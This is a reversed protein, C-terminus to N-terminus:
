RSLLYAAIAACLGGGMILAMAALYAINAGLGRAISGTFSSPGTDDFQAKGVVFLLFFGAIVSIIGGILMIPKVLRDVSQRASQRAENARLRAIWENALPQLCPMINVSKWEGNVDKVASLSEGAVLQWQVRFPTGSATLDAHRGELDDLKLQLEDIRLKVMNQDVAPFSRLIAQEKSLLAAARIDQELANSPVFNGFLRNAAMNPASALADRTFEERALDNHSKAQSQGKAILPLVCITIATALLASRTLVSRM